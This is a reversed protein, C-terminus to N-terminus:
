CKLPRVRSRSTHQALDRLSPVLSPLALLGCAYSLARYSPAKGIQFHEMKCRLAAREYHLPPKEVAEIQLLRICGDELPSYRYGSSNSM